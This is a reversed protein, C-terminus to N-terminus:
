RCTHVYQLNVDFEFVYIKKVLFLCKKNCRLLSLVNQPYVSAETTHMDTYTTVLSMYARSYNPWSPTLVTAYFISGYKIVWHIDKTVNPWPYGDIQQKTKTQLNIL